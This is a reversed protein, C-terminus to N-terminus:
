LSLSYGESWLTRALLAGEGLTQEADRPWSFLESGQKSLRSTGQSTTDGQRATCLGEKGPRRCPEWQQWSLLSGKEGLTGRESWPGRRGAEEGRRVGQRGQGPLGRCLERTVPQGTVRAWCPGSSVKSTLM